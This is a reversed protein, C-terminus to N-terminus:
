FLSNEANVANKEVIVDDHKRSDLIYPKEGEVQAAWDLVKQALTQTQDSVRCGPFMRGPNHIILADYEPAGLLPAEVFCSAFECGTLSLRESADLLREPGGGMLAAERGDAFARDWTDRLQQM